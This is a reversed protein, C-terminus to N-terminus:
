KIRYGYKLRDGEKENNFIWGVVEGIRIDDYMYVKRTVAASGKGHICQRSNEMKQLRKQWVAFNRPRLDVWGKEAWIDIDDNTVVIESEISEPIRIYPGRIIQTGNPVLIPLGLSIITQCM